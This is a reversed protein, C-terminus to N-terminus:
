HRPGNQGSQSQGTYPYLRLSLSTRERPGEATRLLCGVNFASRLNDLVLDIQGLSRGEKRDTKTVGFADKSTPREREQKLAAEWSEFSAESLPFLPLCNKAFHALSAEEHRTLIQLYRELAEGDEKRNNGVAMQESLRLLASLAHERGFSLFARPPITFSM